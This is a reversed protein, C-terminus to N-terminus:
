SETTITGRYSLMWLYTGDSFIELMGGDTAILENKGAADAVGDYGIFQESGNPDVYIGYSANSRMFVARMGKISAASPLSLVVAAGAGLNNHFGEFNSPTLTEDATHTKVVREKSPIRTKM